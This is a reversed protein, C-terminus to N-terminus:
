EAEYRVADLIRVVGVAPKEVTQSLGPDFPYVVSPDIQDAVPVDVPRDLWGSRLLEADTDGCHSGAETKIGIIRQQCFLFIRDEGGATVPQQGGGFPQARQRDREGIKFQGLDQWLLPIETGFAFSESFSGAAHEPYTPSM